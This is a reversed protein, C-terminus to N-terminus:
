ALAITEVTGAPLDLLIFTKVAARHLAGPNIVRTRGVREEAAVHTHGYFLFDFTDANVLARMQGKDDGHIFALKRGEIELYGFGEHLTAGIEEIAARIEARSMDCNGYVFHTPAPFLRVTAADDIDGCHLILAAGRNAIHGLASRVAKERGHTDSLIAIRM